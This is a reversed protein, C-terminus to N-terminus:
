SSLYAIQEELVKLRAAVAVDLTPGMLSIGLLRRVHRDFGQAQTTIEAVATMTKHLADLLRVAETRLAPKLAARAQSTAADLTPQLALVQYELEEQEENFRHIQEQYARRQAPSSPQENLDRLITIANKLAEAVEERRDRLAHLQANVPQALPHKSLDTLALADALTVNTSDSTRVM